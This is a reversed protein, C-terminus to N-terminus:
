LRRASSSEVRIGPLSRFYEATNRPAYLDMQETPLNSVSVSSRLKTKDPRAVSTVVFDDMKLVDPLTEALSAAEEEASQAFSFSPVSLIALFSAVRTFVPPIKM